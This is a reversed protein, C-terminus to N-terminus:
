FPAKDTPDPDEDEEEAEDDAETEDDDDDPEAQEPEALTIPDPTASPAPAAAQAIVAAAVTSCPGSHIFEAGWPRNFETGPVQVRMRTNDADEPRILCPTYMAGSGAQSAWPAAQKALWQAVDPTVHYQWEAGACQYRVRDAAILRVQACAYLTGTGALSAHPHDRQLEIENAM